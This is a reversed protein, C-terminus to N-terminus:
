EVNDEEWRDILYELTSIATSEGMEEISEKLVQINDRTLEDFSPAGFADQIMYEIQQQAEYDLIEDIKDIMRDFRYTSSM